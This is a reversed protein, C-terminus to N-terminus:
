PTEPTTLIIQFGAVTGEQGLALAAFDRQQQDTSHLAPALSQRLASGPPKVCDRLLLAACLADGDRPRPTPLLFRAAAPTWNRLRIRLLEQGSYDLSRNIRSVLFPMANTGMEGFALSVPKSTDLTMTMANFDVRPRGLYCAFWEELPRGQYFHDEPRSLLAWAMAIMAFIALVLGIKRWRLM